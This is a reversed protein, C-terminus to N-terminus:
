GELALMARAGIDHRFYANDFSVKEVLKYAGDIAERLTPAVATCGLVRGGSTLLQGGSLKAGAV